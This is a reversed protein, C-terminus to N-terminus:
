EDSDEKKCQCIGVYAAFGCVRCVGDSDLTM